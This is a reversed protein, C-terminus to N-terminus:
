LITTFPMLSSKKAPERNGPSSFTSAPVQVAPVHDHMGRRCFSGMMLPQREDGSGLFSNFVLFLSKRLMYKRFFGGFPSRLACVLPGVAGTGTM